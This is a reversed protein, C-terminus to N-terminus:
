LLLLLLLLDNSNGIWENMQRKMKRSPPLFTHPHSVFEIFSPPSASISSRSPREGTMYHVRYQSPMSIAEFTTQNCFDNVMICEPEHTSYMAIKCIVHIISPFASWLLQMENEAWKKPHDKVQSWEIYRIDNYDYRGRRLGHHLSSFFRVKRGDINRM